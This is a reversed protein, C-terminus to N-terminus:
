AAIKRRLANQKRQDASRRAHVVPWDLVAAYFDALEQPDPAELCIGFWDTKAWGRM